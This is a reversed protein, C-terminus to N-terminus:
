FSSSLTPPSTRLNNWSSVNFDTLDPVVYTRVKNWDILYGGRKTHRGMAGSGTGTHVFWCISFPTSHSKTFFINYTGKYYNHGRKSTMPTRRAGRYLGRIVGFMTFQLRYFFIGPLCVLANSLNPHSPFEFIATVSPQAWDGLLPMEWGTLCSLLMGMIPWSTSIVSSTHM